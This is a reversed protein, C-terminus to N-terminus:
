ELILQNKKLGELGTQLAANTIFAEVEAKAEHVTKDMQENFMDAIFPINAKVEQKLLRLKNYLEQRDKKGVTSKEAMISMETLLADFKDAIKDTHEYFENVFQERKSNFRPEPVEEGLIYRITCPVGSAVSISSILEGFQNPTLDVEVISSGSRHRDEHYSRDSEGRNVRLRIYSVHKISSGFLTKPNGSSIRSLSVTGYSPHEEIKRDM